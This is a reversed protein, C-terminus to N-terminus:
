FKAPDAQAQNLPDAVIEATIAVDHEVEVRIEDSVRGLGARMEDVNCPRYRMVAASCGFSASVPSAPMFINPFPSDM